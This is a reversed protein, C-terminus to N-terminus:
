CCMFIDHIGQKGNQLRVLLQCAGIGTCSANAYPIISWLDLYSHMLLKLRRM